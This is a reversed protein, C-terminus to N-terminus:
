RNFGDKSGIYPTFMWPHPQYAVDGLLAYPHLQGRMCHKGIKSKSFLNYDHISNCLRVDYNYFCCSSDVIGQLLVSHFGKRYYDAAHQISAIIPIHSGDIAGVIYRIGHLAELCQSIDKFCSPSPWRIFVDRCHKKLVHCLELVIKHVISVGVGFTDAITYM